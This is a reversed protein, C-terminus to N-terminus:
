VIMRKRFGKAFISKGYTSVFIEVFFPFQMWVFSAIPVSSLLVVPVIIWPKGDLMMYLAASFAITMTAVSLFLTFLGAIMKSPLSKVFDTMKYRSTLIGLFIMVSTTSSFLSIADSVMFIMFAKENSFIPFGTDGNNGGPITFAAAFMMTVILAGVVTCSTATEKMSNEGEKMLDKHYKAFVESPQLQDTKNIEKGQWPTLVFVETYWQVERQMQLAAGRIHGIGAQAHSPFSGVIHLMNNDFKDKRKCIDIANWFDLEHILNYVKELRYDAAYQLVTRDKGNTIEAIRENAKFMRRLFEVNETEAARFIAKRLANNEQMEAVNKNRIADCIRDLLTLSQVHLIKQERIWDDDNGCIGFPNVALRLLSSMGQDEFGSRNDEVGPANIPPVNSVHDYIIRERFTFTEIFKEATIFDCGALTYLPSQGSLDETIGLSPYRNLLHMPIELNGQKLCLSILQAAQHVCMTDLPTVSFLYARVRVDRRAGVQHARVLPIMNTSPDVISLLRENKEVMCKAVAVSIENYRADVGYSLATRGSPDLIELEDATMLQVMRKAIEENESRSLSLHLAPMGSSPHRERVTEPHQKLFELVDEERSFGSTSSYGDELCKFFPEYINRQGDVKVEVETVEKIELDKLQLGDSGEDTNNSAPVPKFMKALTAWADKATRSDRIFGFVDTGCSNQIAHHAKANKKKWGRYEDTDEKNPTEATAKVVEWLGEAKLYIRVRRSWDEYNYLNLVELITNASPVVRAAAM